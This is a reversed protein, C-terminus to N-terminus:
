VRENSDTPGNVRSATLNEGVRGDLKLAATMWLKALELFHQRVSETTANRADEMCERAYERYEAATTV